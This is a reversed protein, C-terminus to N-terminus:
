SSISHYPMPSMRLNESFNHPVLSNDDKSIGPLVTAAAAERPAINQSNTSRYM